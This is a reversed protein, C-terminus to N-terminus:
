LIEADSSTLLVYWSIPFVLSLGFALVCAWVFSAAHGALDSEIWKTASVFAILLYAFTFCFGIGYAALAYIM